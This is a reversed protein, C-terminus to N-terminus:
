TAHNEQPLAIVETVGEWYDGNRTEREVKVIFEKGIGENLSRKVSKYRPYENGVSMLLRHFNPACHERFYLNWDDGLFEGFIIQGIEVCVNSRSIEFFVEYTPEDTYECISSKWGLLKAYFMGIGTKTIELNKLDNKM